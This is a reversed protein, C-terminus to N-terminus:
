TTETEKKTHEYDGLNIMKGDIHISGYFVNCDQIKIYALPNSSSISQCIGFERRLWLEMEENTPGKVKIPFEIKLDKIHIM